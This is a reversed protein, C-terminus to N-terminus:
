RDPSSSGEFAANVQAAALRAIADIWDRGIPEHEVVWPIGRRYTLETLRGVSFGLEELARMEWRLSEREGDRGGDAGPRVYREWAHRPTARLRVALKVALYRDVPHLRM